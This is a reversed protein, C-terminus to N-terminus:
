YAMIINASSEIVTYVWATVCARSQGTKVKKPTKM